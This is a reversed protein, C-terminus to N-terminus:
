AISCAIFDFGAFCLFVVVDDIRGFLLRKEGLHNTM